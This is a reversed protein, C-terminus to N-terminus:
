SERPRCPATRPQHRAVRVIELVGPRGSSWASPGAGCDSANAEPTTIHGGGRTRDAASTVLLSPTDSTRSRGPVTGETGPTRSSPTTIVKVLVRQAAPLWSAFSHRAIALSAHLASNGSGPLFMARPRNRDAGLSPASLAAGIIIRSLKM